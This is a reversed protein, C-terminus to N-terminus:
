YVSTELEFKPRAETIVMKRGALMKGQLSEMALVMDERRMFRVFFFPRYTLKNKNVPRYVDGLQGFRFDFITGEKFIRM